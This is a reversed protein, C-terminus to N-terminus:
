SRLREGRPDYPAQALLTASYRNGAVEIKYRGGDLQRASKSVYGFALHKGVSHGYAASTVLGQLQGNCYIPEDGYIWNDDIDVALQALFPGGDIEIAELLAAKGVFDKRLDVAYMLGSSVPTLGASLERGWSRYGKEIRLSALANYGACHLGLDKGAAWLTDLVDLASEPPVYLEWGLEGAYSVRLALARSCGLTITRAHMFPFTQNSLDSESVRKLLERSRPGCVALVGYSSTVDVVSLAAGAQEIARRIWWLDKTAQGAGTVIMFDDPAIRVVTLDSETGGRENLMATYVVRGVPVDINNSFLRQGISLADRGLLRFKAFSSLDFLAVAERAARHEIASREIGLPRLYPNAPAPEAEGYWLPREWGMLSGFHAGLDALRAHFPSLRQNRGTEFDKGPVPVAMHRGVIESVRTALWRDNDQAAGFRRIDYRTMDTGPRGELIWEALTRGMGASMAVGGSNFGALVYFSKLEPAEGIMLNGDPTFSEPGNLLMRIEAQRLAPIRDMARAVYPEVHEWDEELRGFSFEKPIRSLPLPKAGPEFCGVLLGGVDERMYINSDPDNLIPLKGHVGEIPKTLMYFHETAHLPVNVGAMAGITRSWLGACLVVVECAITGKETVVEAPRGNRIVIGTVPCHEVFIADRTRAGKAYAMVLGTPDVRGSGPEWVAGVIDDVNALPWIEKVRNRDIVEAAGGLANFTSVTRKYDEFRAATQAVKVYGCQRWGVSLGTEQELRAYLDAGYRALGILGTPKMLPIDGASHWTTGASLVSRELVVVDRWGMKTLHYAVSAGAAGGGIIVARAHRPLLTADTM